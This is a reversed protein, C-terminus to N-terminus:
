RVFDPMQEKPKPSMKICVSYKLGGKPEIREDCSVSFRKFGILNQGKYKSEAYNSVCM